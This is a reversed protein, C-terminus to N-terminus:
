KIKKAPRLSGPSFAIRRLSRAPTAGKTTHILKDGLISCKYIGRGASDVIEQMSMTARDILFSRPGDVASGTVILKGPQDFVPCVRYIYDTASRGKDEGSIVLSDGHPTKKLCVLHGDIRTGSFTTQLIQFDSLSSFNWDVTACVLRYVIAATATARCGAVYFFRPVGEEIVVHPNCEVVVEGCGEIYPPLPPRFMDSGDISLMVRWPLLSYTAGFNGFSFVSESEAECCLLCEDGLPNTFLFPQNQHM